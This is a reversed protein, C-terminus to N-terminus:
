VVDAVIYSLEHSMCTHVNFENGICPNRIRPWLDVACRLIRGNKQENIEEDTWGDMSRDALGGMQGYNHRRQKRRRDEIEEDTKADTMGDMRGYTWKDRIRGDKWRNRWGVMWGNLRGDLQENKWITLQVYTDVREDMRMMWREVSGVMQGDKYIWGHTRETWGQGMVTPKVQVRQLGITNKNIELRQQCFAAM